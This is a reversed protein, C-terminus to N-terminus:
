SQSDFILMESSLSNELRIPIGEQMLLSGPFEVVQNSNCFRVRYTREFNLGRPVFRFTSEGIQATRFLSAVARQGDQTAYELVVWPTPEFLPTLPTHHYVRSGVMIPRVVRKFLDMSDRIKARSLPNLEAVSPSIGRFIPRCMMAIRLQWDLDGDTAHDGVETGFTRLLIEPPLIWTMGNLIKISRPGRMWDSLETNHFRRLIGLDLRGGGGACNQLIVNPFKLHVRDFIGYLAETYLWLTNEVFGDKIRNGGEYITTNYDIRFMDLDYKKILRLIESEMWAVVAPNALDLQRGYGSGGETGPNGGIPQGNRTAVWDPHEKRLKSASGIGEIEVWLGFLLGKQRAYERVPMLDNPLWAGPYWDGVNQAWRNPEPGYWGADIMFLEAGVETALDIERKLGTEDEHDVIYGRHNAEVQYERGSPAPPLVDRRVHNQLTQIIQDLEAQMCFLHTEPSKVTEGPSLVRLAPDAASPGMSFFMRAQKKILDQQSTLRITWNGSWGLSGVFWEGTARNHVFFTPHGWGSKGRTGNLTKSGNVISEFKWAGEQGWDEYQCSAVEFVADGGKEIREGYDPTNWLMGSWPSVRTIATSKKGTNTIELWRVMVPGGRLLTCLKVTIPRTTSALEVTVLNGNLSEIKSQEAKVWRWSRALDEGEIALEFADTPLSEMVSNEQELHYEPKILGTSLWYRNIWRGKRLVEDTVTLGSSFRIGPEAGQRVVAASYREPGTNSLVFAGIAIFGFCTLFLRKITM